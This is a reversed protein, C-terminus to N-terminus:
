LHLRLAVDNGYRTKLSEFTAFFKTLVDRGFPYRPIRPVNVLRRGLFFPEELSNRERPFPVHQLGVPHALPAFSFLAMRRQRVHEVYHVLAIGDQWGQVIQDGDGERVLKPPAEPHPLAKFWEELLEPLPSSALLITIEPLVDPFDRHTTRRSPFEARRVGGANSDCKLAETQRWSIVGRRARPSLQWWEEEEVAAWLRSHLTLASLGAAECIRRLSREEPQSKPFSAVFALLVLPISTDVRM